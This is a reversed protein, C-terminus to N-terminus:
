RRTIGHAAAFLILAMEAVIFWSLAETFGWVFALLLGYPSTVLRAIATWIRSQREQAIFEDRVAVVEGKRLRSIRQV